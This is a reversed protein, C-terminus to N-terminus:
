KNWLVSMKLHGHGMAISTIINQVYDIHVHEM